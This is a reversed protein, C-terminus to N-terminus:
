VIFDYTNASCGLSNFISGLLHPPCRCHSRQLRGQYRRWRPATTTTSIEDADATRWQSASLKLSQLFPLAGVWGTASHHDTSSCMPQCMTEHLRQQRGHLMQIKMTNFWWWWTENNRENRDEKKEGRGVGTCTEISSLQSSSVRHAWWRVHKLKPLTCSINSRTCSNAHSFKSKYLLGQLTNM